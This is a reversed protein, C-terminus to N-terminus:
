LRCRPQPVRPVAWSVTRPEQDPPPKIARGGRPPRGPHLPCGSAPAPRPLQLCVRSISSSRHLQSRMAPLPGPALRALRLTLMETEDMRAPQDIAAALERHPHELLPLREAARAALLLESLRLDGDPDLITRAFHKSSTPAPPDLREAPQPPYAVSVTQQGRLFEPSM